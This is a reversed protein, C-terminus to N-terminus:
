NCFERNRLRAIDRGHLGHTGYPGNRPPTRLYCDAFNRLYRLHRAPMSRKLRALDLGDEECRRRWCTINQRAADPVDSCARWQLVLTHDRAHTWLRRSPDKSPAFLCSRHSTICSIIMAVLSTFPLALWLYTQRRRPTLVHNGGAGNVGRVFQKRRM